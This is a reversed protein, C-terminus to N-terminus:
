RQHLKVKDRSYQTYSFRKLHIILIRPPSWIDMKKTAQRFEKCDSCYWMEEEGLTEEQSFAEFCTQLPVSEAPGSTSTMAAEASEHKTSNGQTLKDPLEQEYHVGFIKFDVSFPPRVRFRTGNWSSPM